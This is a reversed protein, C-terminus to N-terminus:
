DLDLLSVDLTIFIENQLLFSWNKSINVFFQM